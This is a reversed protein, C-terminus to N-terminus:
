TLLVSMSSLLRALSTRLCWRGDLVPEADGAEEHIRQPRPDLLRRDRAPDRTRLMGADDHRRDPTILLLLGGDQTRSCM